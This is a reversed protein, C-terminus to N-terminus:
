VAVDCAVASNLKQLLTTMNRSPTALSNCYFNMKDGKQWFISLLTLKRTEESLIVTSETISPFLRLVAVNPCLKTQVRFRKLGRHRFISEWNVVLSICGVRNFM